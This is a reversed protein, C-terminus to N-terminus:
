KTQLSFAKAQSSGLYFSADAGAPAYTATLTYTGNKQNLQLSATAAGFADTVGSATQAGLQFTITRGPLPKGTADKLAASLAVIKNPKGSTAGTYVVSTGKPAVSFGSTASSPNYFADGAFVASAIYSGAALTSTYAQAATGSSNTAAAFPGTSGVQFTISRGSVPTGFQDILSASLSAATDFGASTDGLWATITSRKIVHVVRSGSACAAYLDCSTLTTTYDGPASYVHTTSAGGSASPSGDGFSWSYVLTAQDATGPDTASGNFAVPTGWIATTDPGAAVAPPLNVINAAFTTLASLGTADIATLEGSYAGSGPFVHQPTKGFAASGDSFNWVLTPFGCVSSSGSGDFTIPSGENGAYPGGANVTPPINNKQVAGLDFTAGAGSMAVDSAVTDLSITPTAFPVDVELFPFFPLPAEAGVDFVLSTAISIGPDTALSGLVFKLDSGAPSTCSISFVDTFPAEGLSLAVAAGEPLGDFSAQRATAIAQPTITIDAALGLSVYPGPSPYHDILKIQDSALHCVYASGDALLDCLATANFTPSGLDLPGVGLWSVGVNNLTWTISLLGSAPRTFADSPDLARGQRLLNPDFTLALSAAQSWTLHTTMDTSFDVGGESKTLGNLTLTRSGSLSTAQPLTTTVALASGGALTLVLGCLRSVSHISDALRRAHM